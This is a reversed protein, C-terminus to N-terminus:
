YGAVAIRREATPQPSRVFSPVLVRACAGALAVENLTLTKM